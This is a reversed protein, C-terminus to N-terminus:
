DRLFGGDDLPEAQALAPAVMGPGRAEPGSASAGSGLRLLVVAFLSATGVIVTARYALRERRARAERRLLVQSLVHSEREGDWGLPRERVRAIAENLPSM